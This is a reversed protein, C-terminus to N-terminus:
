WFFFKKLYKKDLGTNGKKSIRNCVCVTNNIHYLLWIGFYSKIARAEQDEHEQATGEWVSYPQGTHDILYQPLSPIHGRLSVWLLYQLKLWTRKQIVGEWPDDAARDHSCEPLGCLSGHPSFSFGWSALCTFPIIISASKGFGTLCKSSATRALMKVAVEYFITFNSAGLWFQEQIESKCFNHKLYAGLKPYHTICYYIIFTTLDM